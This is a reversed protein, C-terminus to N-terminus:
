SRTAPNATPASSARQEMDGLLGPESLIDTPSTSRASATCSPPLPASAGCATRPWAWAPPQMASALESVRRQHGATYPDKREVTNSLAVITQEWASAM